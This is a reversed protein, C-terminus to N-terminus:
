TRCSGALMGVAVSFTGRDEGSLLESNARDWADSYERDVITRLTPSDVVIQRKSAAARLGLGTATVKASAVVVETSRLGMQSLTVDAVYGDAFTLRVSSKSAAAVDVLQERVEPADDKGNSAKARASRGTSRLDPTGEMQRQNRKMNQWESRRQAATDDRSNKKEISKLSEVM